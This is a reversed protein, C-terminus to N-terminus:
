RGAGSPNANRDAAPTVPPAGTPPTGNPPPAAPRNLAELLAALAAQYDQQLTEIRKVMEERASKAVPLERALEERRTGLSAVRREQSARQAKSLNSQSLTAREEAEARELTSSAAAEDQLLTDLERRYLELRVHAVFSARAIARSQKGLLELSRASLEASHADLYHAAESHADLRQEQQRELAREAAYAATNGLETALEEGCETEGCKKQKVSYSVSGAVRRRLGSRGDEFLDDLAEQHLAEDSYYGSRGARDAREFLARAVARENDRLGAPPTRLVTLSAQARREHESFDSRVQSLRAPYAQAFVAQDASPTAVEAPPRCAAAACVVWSCALRTLVRFVLM